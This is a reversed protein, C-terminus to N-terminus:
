FIMRSIIYLNNWCRLFLFLWKIAILSFILDYMQILHSIHLTFLSYRFAFQSYIFVMLSFRSIRFWSIGELTFSITTDL